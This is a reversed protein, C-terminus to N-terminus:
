PLLDAKALERELAAVTEDVREIFELRVIGALDSHLTTGRKMLICVRSRGLRGYFWGLEFIANPRAQRVTTDGIGIADDPTLLVICFAADGAMREFKEIVTEGGSAEDMLVVPKLAYREKLLASLRLLNAEDHGHVIFVTRSEPAIRNISSPAEQRDGRTQSRLIGILQDCVMLAVSGKEPAPPDGQSSRVPSTFATVAKAVESQQDQIMADRIANLRNCATFHANKDGRAAAQLPLRLAELQSLILTHANM